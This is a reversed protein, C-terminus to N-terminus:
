PYSVQVSQYAQNEEGKIHYTVKIPAQWDIEIIGFNLQAVLDGERHRNDEDADEYVHTLGSSTIDYVPYPVGSINIKSIEGIHRDGSLFVVGQAGSSAIMQFVRERSEPLNAWKEFGHDEAIVQISSGIINLQATSEKLEKELWIWQEEGLMDGEPNPEYRRGPTESILLTDRFYRTDLLIVKVQQGEPGFIYSQYGGERQRISAGNDVDLFDLMLDRSEQKKHYFKGGDNIGYDHDDWIGVVPVREYLNQYDPQQKQQVYMAKMAEMDQTDGYINDGLWVWLDPDNAIIPQWLPQPLDQRNCSGFAITTLVASSDIRAAKKSKLKDEASSDATENSNSTSCNAFLGILILALFFSSFRKSM